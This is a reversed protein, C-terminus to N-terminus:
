HYERAVWGDKVWEEKTEGGESEVLTVMLEIIKALLMLSVVLFTLHHWSVMERMEGVENEWRESLVLTLTVEGDIVPALVVRRVM